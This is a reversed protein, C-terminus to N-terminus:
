FASQLARIMALSSPRASPGSEPAITIALIGKQVTVGAKAAQIIRVIHIRDFLLARKATKAVEEVAYTANRMADCSLARLVDSQALGDWDAAFGIAFDERSSLEQALKAAFPKVEKPGVPPPDVNQIVDSYEAPLGNRAQATYLTVGGWGTVKLAVVGTDYKLVRGGLPAAESSLYFVEDNDAFRLRVQGGFHDLMFTVDDNAVYTGDRPLPAAPALLLRAPPPSQQALLPRPPAQQAGDALGTGMVLALALALSFQLRVADFERL